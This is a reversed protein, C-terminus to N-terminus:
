TRRVQHSAGSSKLLPMLLQDISRYRVYQPSLTDYQVEIVDIKERVVGQSLDANLDGAIAKLALDACANKVEVPVEDAPYYYYGGILVSGNLTAAEFDSYEVFNRPWDLAQSASVRTGKWRNRYAQTMYDTAKRLLQERIADTAVSAWASNGRNAHYATADAVSIYSESDPKASGDETILSM